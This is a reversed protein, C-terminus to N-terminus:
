DKWTVTCTASCLGRCALPLASCPALVQDTSVQWQSCRSYEDCMVKKVSQPWIGNASLEQVLFPNTKSSQHVQYYDDRKGTHNAEVTGSYDMTLSQRIVTESPLPRIMTFLKIPEITRLNMLIKIVVLNHAQM